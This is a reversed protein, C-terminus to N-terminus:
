RGAGREDQRRVRGQRCGVRRIGFEWEHLISVGDIGNGTPYFVGINQYVDACCFGAACAKIGM